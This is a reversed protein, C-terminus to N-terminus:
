FSIEGQCIAERQGHSKTASRNLLARVCGFKASSPTRFLINLKM